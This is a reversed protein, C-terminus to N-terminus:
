RADGADEVGVVAAWLPGYRVLDELMDLDAVGPNAQRIAAWARSAFIRRVRDAIEQNQLQRVGDAIQKALAPTFTPNDSCM